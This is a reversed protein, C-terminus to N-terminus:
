DRLAYDRIILENGKTRIKVLVKLSHLFLNHGSVCFFFFSISLSHISSSKKFVEPMAM